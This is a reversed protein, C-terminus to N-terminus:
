LPVMCFQCLDCIVLRSGCGFRVLLGQNALIRFNETAGDTFERSLDFQCTERRLLTGNYKGRLILNRAMASCRVRENRRKSEAHVEACRGRRSEYRHLSWWSSYVMKTQVPLLVTGKDRRGSILFNKEVGRSSNLLKHGNLHIKAFSNM